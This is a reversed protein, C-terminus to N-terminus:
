KSPRFCLDNILPDSFAPRLERIETALTCVQRNLLRIQVETIKHLMASQSACVRLQDISAKTVYAEECREATAAARARGDDREANAVVAIVIASFLWWARGKIM